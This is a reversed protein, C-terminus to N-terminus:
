NFSLRRVIGKVKRKIYSLTKNTNFYKKLRYFVSPKIYEEDGHNYKHNDEINIGVIELYTRYRDNSQIYNEMLKNCKTVLIAREKENNLYYLCLEHLHELNKYMVIICNKGFVRFVDSDQHYPIMLLANSSLVDYSRYSLAGNFQHKSDCVVIKSQQYLNQLEEISQISKNADFCDLYEPKKLLEHIWKSNGYLSIGLPYLKEILSTQKEACIHDTLLKEFEILPLKCDALFDYLQSDKMTPSLDPNPQIELKNIVENISPLTTDHHTVAKAFIERIKKTEIHPEVFTINHKLISSSGTTLLNNTFSPLIHLNEHNDKQINKNFLDYQQYNNVILHENKFDITPLVSLPSSESPILNIIPLNFKVKQNKPIVSNNLIIILNPKIRSIEKEIKKLPFIRKIQVSQKNLHLDSENLIYLNHGLQKFGDLLSQHSHNSKQGSDSSYGILFIKQQM